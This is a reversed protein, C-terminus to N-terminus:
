ASPTPAPNVVVAPPVPIEQVSEAPRQPADFTATFYFRSGQGPDSEVWIKGNMLTTLQSCIALGLGTGGFGRTSSGDVQTFADFISIQKEKPIGIGTDSVCFTLLIRSDVQSTLRVDVEVGGTSTFKIANGVLNLLIQRLRSADGLLLQPISSDVSHRLYLKKEVARIALAPLAHHLCERVSFPSKELRLKGAEVKSFDLIDDIITLLSNASFNVIDLYERREADMEGALVLGTMGIIGNMPTRLEHSMNALFESKARNAAEAAEKLHVLEITRERVRQELEDNSRRLIHEAEKRETIEEVIGVIRKLRGSEDVIPFSRDWLWRTCGGIVIQYERDLRDGQRQRLRLDEVRERDDPHISMLWANPNRLVLDASYGFIEDFAPSVYLFEGTYPDMMWFVERINEALQRFKKESSSLAETREQVLKELRRQQARLQSVRIRYGTAFLGLIFFVVAAVFISTQYFHPKLSFSVAAGDRSWVRDANCAIVRFRYTGPPINTYFATRRTGADTWDKDFGELMYKFRIEGPQIFSTATYQFEFRGRGPPLSLLPDGRVEHNDVIIREVLVQPELPNTVLHAPDVLAAGKMTPFALQGDRLRWGAAQFGGNCERNRMGDALGFTHVSLQGIPRKAFSDLQTKAIEFIGRNGSMWLNGHSDDLIQFVTDDPLGAKTTFASFKGDKFRSLGGGDTGLWLTGDSDPYIALVVDNLLGASKSYSLFRGDKFRNLGAGTGVWLAGDRPDESISLVHPDSLGNKTSFTIFRKGDFYSLGERTGVWLKGKSDTYTCRVFSNPLGNQTTYVVLKGNSLRTLGRRTGFWHDGHGDETISFVQNDSLGDRVTFSKSKGAELRNVGGNSTGIWLAGESDQYLGLIVDSSLGEQAGFTTFSANRLRNLGGGASGIWLSGERDQIIAWVEEGSFGDAATFRSFEGNHMRTVGGGGTGLWLSGARDKFISWIHNDSIGNAATFTTINTGTLHALGAGNTGIWLSGPEDAYLSRVDNSPLGDKTTLNVFGGNTWHSLGEHTAIWIGGQRDGCISFVANGALGDASTYVSFKGRHLRNLGGGDTAIWLDEQEDEYLAQVSDQSLGDSKTFSKFVGNRLLVLGGGRTGIWLNGQRDALLADVEDSQFSATSRKDFTVFRVGDFRLLGEETGLWLYGDPTQAIALVSSQPLGSATTWVDHVYQTISKSPDLAAGLQSPILCAAASAILLILAKTTPRRRHM